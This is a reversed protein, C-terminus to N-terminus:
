AQHDPMCTRAAPYARLREEEIWDGTVECRGYTGQKLKDLALDIESLSKELDGVRANREQLEEAEAGSDISDEVSGADYDPQLPVYAGAASDFRAIPTLEKLIAERQSALAAQQTDLFEQSYRSHSTM